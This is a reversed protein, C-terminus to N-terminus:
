QIPHARHCKRRGGVGEVWSPLPNGQLSGDHGNGSSDHAISGSGESFKWYAVTNTDTGLCRLKKLRRSFNSTYRIVNSIRFEDVVGGGGYSGDGAQGFFLDGNGMALSDRGITIPPGGYGIAYNVPDGAVGDIYLLLNSGNYVVAYHHWQNDWYDGYNFAHVYGASQFFASFVVGDTVNFDGLNHEIGLYYGNTRTFSGSLLRGACKFWCEITFEGQPFLAPDNPIEVQNGMGNFQLAASRRATLEARSGNDDNSVATIAHDVGAVCGACLLGIPLIRWYNM